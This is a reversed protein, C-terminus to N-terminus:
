RLNRKRFINRRVRASEYRFLREGKKKELRRKLISKLDM